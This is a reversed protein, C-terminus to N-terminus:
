AAWRRPDGDKMEALRLAAETERASAALAARLQLARYDAMSISDRNGQPRGPLGFRRALVGTYNRTVGLEKAIELTSVGALWLSSFPERQIKAKPGGKRPPLGRRQGMHSVSTRYVGFMEAIDETKLDPNNWADAFAARAIRRGQTM